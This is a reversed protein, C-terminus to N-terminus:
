FGIQNRGVRGKLAFGLFKFAVQTLAPDENQRIGLVVGGEVSGRWGM